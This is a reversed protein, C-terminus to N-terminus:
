LIGQPLGKPICVGRLREDILFMGASFQNKDLWGDERIDVLRCIQELNEDGIRSARWVDFATEYYVYCQDCYQDFLKEYKMRDGVPISRRVSATAPLPMHSTPRPPNALSPRKSPAPRPPPTPTPRPSPTPSPKQLSAASVSQPRSPLPPGSSKNSPYVQSQIEPRRPLPRPPIKLDRDSYSTPRTSHNIDEEEIVSTVSSRSSVNSMMSPRRPPTPASVANPRPQIIPLQGSSLRVPVQSINPLQLSRRDPIPKKETQITNELRKPYDVGTSARKINTLLTADASQNQKAAADAAAWKKRLESPKLVEPPEEENTEAPSTAVPPTRPKSSEQSNPQKKSVTSAAGTNELKARLAKVSMAPIDTEQSKEATDPESTGEDRTGLTIKPVSSVSQSSSIISPSNRVTYNNSGGAIGPPKAAVKPKRPKNPEGKDPVLEVYNAPFLGQRGSKQLVGVCWGEEESDTVHTIIEGKKFSLEDSNEVGDCDYLARATSMVDGFIAARDSYKM